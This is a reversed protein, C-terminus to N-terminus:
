SISLGSDQAAMRRSAMTVTVVLRGLMTCASGSSVRSNKSFRKSPRLTCCSELDRVLVQWKLVLHTSYFVICWEKFRRQHM